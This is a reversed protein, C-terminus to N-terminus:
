QMSCIELKRQPHVSGMATSSSFTWSESLLKLLSARLFQMISMAVLLDNAGHLPLAQIGFADCSLM